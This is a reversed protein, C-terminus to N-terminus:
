IPSDHRSIKKNSKELTDKKIQEPHSLTLKNPNLKPHNNPNLPLPPTLSPLGFDPPPCSCLAPFSQVLKPGKQGGLDLTVDAPGTM